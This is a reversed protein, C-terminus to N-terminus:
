IYSAINRMDKSTCGSRKKLKETLRQLGIYFLHCLNNYLACNVYSTHLTHAYLKTELEAYCSTYLKNTYNSRYNQPIYETSKYLIAQLKLHYWRYNQTTHAYYVSYNLYSINYNKQLIM